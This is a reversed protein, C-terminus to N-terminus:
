LLTTVLNMTTFLISIYMPFDNFIYIYINIKKLDKKNCIKLNRQDELYSLHICLEIHLICYWYIKLKNIFLIM